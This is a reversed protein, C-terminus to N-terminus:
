GSIEIQLDKTVDFEIYRLKCVVVLANKDKSNFIDMNLLEVRPDNKFVTTLDEKVVSVTENDDLEFVLLPIRTGYTPMMLREGRLTFIANLLDEQICEVNYVDFQKGVDEYKKTSFGKYYKKIRNFM